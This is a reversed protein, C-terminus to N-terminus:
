KWATPPCLTQFEPHGDGAAGACLFLATIVTSRAGSGGPGHRGRRHWVSQRNPVSSVPGGGVGACPDQHVDGDLRGRLDIRLCKEIDAFVLHDAWLGHRGGIRPLPHYLIYAGGAKPMASVLEAQSLLGALAMVAALFYSGLVAPGAQAYALGPLIFLGSLMAGTTICFVDLHNLERKLKM